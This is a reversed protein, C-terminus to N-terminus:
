NLFFHRFSKAINCLWGNVWRSKFTFGLFDSQVYKPKFPLHNKQSRKGYVINSKEQKSALQNQKM